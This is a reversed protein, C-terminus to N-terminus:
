NHQIQIVQTEKCDSLTNSFHCLAQTQQLKDHTHVVQLVVQEGTFGVILLICEAQLQHHAANGFISGAMSRLIAVLLM